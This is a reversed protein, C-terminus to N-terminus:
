DSIIQKSGLVVDLAPIISTGKDTKWQKPAVVTPVENMALVNGTADVLAIIDPKVAGQKEDATFRRFGIRAQNQREIPSDVRIAAVFEKEAALREAKNSVDIGDLQNLKQVVQYARTLKTDAEKKLRDEFSTSAVFFAIATLIAIVAAVVAAIVTRSM